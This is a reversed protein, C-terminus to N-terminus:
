VPLHVMLQLTSTKNWDVIKILDELVASATPHAGAGAGILTLDGVVDGQVCLANQVDNVHFLPDAPSVLEPGMECHVQNAEYNWKASVIHKIKLNRQKANQIDAARVERIGVPTTCARFHKPVGICDLLIQLKCWADVGDIDMSPNAEAYGLEQALSLAEQFTLNDQHMRSLIYNSTGNMIGRFGQIHNISFYTQLTHIIPIGGLVSAEYAIHVGNNAAVSRIEEGHRAMLEKNATVVSKGHSLATLVAEKAPHIGGFVEIVVDIDNASCVNAWSTCLKSKDVLPHRNRHIDRVVIRKLEPKTCYQQYIYGKKAELVELVGTGVIGCGLMGIRLEKAMQVGGLTVLM